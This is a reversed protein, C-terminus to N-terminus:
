GREAMVNPLCEVLGGGGLEPLRQAFVERIRRVTFESCVKGLQFQIHSPRGNEIVSVPATENGSSM